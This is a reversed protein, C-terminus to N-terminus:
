LKSQNEDKELGVLNIPGLRGESVEEELWISASHLKQAIELEPSNPAAMAEIYASAQFLLSAFSGLHM